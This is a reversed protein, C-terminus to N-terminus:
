TALQKLEELKGLLLEFGLLVDWINSYSKICGHRRMRFQGDDKLTKVVTEFVTLISKLHQLVDLDLDNLQTEARLYRPLTDL